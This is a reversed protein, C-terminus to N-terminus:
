ARHSEHEYVAGPVAAPAELREGAPQDGATV